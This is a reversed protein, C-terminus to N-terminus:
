CFSIRASPKSSSPSSPEPSLSNVTRWFISIPFMMTTTHIQFLPTVIPSVLSRPPSNKLIIVSRARSNSVWMFSPTMCPSISAALMELGLFTGAWCTWDKKFVVVLDPLLGVYDTITPALEFPAMVVSLISSYIRRSKLFARLSWSRWLACFSTSSLISAKVLAEIRSSRDVAFGWGSTSFVSLITTQKRPNLCTFQFVALSMSPFCDKLISRM